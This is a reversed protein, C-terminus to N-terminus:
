VDLEGIRNGDIKASSPDESSEITALANELRMAFVALSEQPTKGETALSGRTAINAFTDVCVLENIRTLFKGEHEYLCFTGSYRGVHLIGGRHDVFDDSFAVALSTIAERITLSKM